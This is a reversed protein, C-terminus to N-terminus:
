WRDPPTFVAMRCRTAPRSITPVTRWSTMDAALDRANGRDLRMRHTEVSVHPNLRRIADAASEVKPRGVDPTGHLVQRQLNSLSVDDDDVIGITGLGAAALYQILPSGLGGAGVVLV